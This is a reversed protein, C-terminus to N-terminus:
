QGWGSGVILRIVIPANMQGANMYFWKAAQNIIQDMSLLAFEVRQHCLVPKFNSLSAGLAIGTMANESTPMDFVRKSGFVEKLKKTTGFIRKPDDVGLGMIIVRRDKKMSQYLAENIAESFQIKRSTLYNKKKNQM